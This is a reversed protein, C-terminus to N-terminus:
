LMVFEELSSQIWEKKAVLSSSFLEMVVSWMDDDDLM